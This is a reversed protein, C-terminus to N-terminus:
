AVGILVFSFYDAGYKQLYVSDDSVLQSLFYFSAVPALAGLIGLAFAVKYSADVRMGKKLFAWLKHGIARVAWQRGIGQRDGPSQSRVAAEGQGRDVSALDNPGAVPAGRAAITRPRQFTAM